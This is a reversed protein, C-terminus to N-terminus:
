EVLRRLLARLRPARELAKRLGEIAQEDVVLPNRQFRGAHDYFCFRVAVSGAAEGETSELLQICPVHYPGTYSAEEAIHGSGWHLTFPRPTTREGAM